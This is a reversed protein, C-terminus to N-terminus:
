KNLFKSENSSYRPGTFPYKDLIKRIQELDGVTLKLDAAGANEELYKRRKTGPIPIIDDGQAIVWAISLQAAISGKGAAFAAFEPVRKQNNDLYEGHYRPLRSRFDDKGLDAENLLFGFKTALFVKDRKGKLFQGILKENAHDIGYIDTTDWFNIGLELARQLTVNSEENDPTGYAASMGMCGLGLTSVKDGTNGFEKYRM